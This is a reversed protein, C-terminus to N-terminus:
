PAPQPRVDPPTDVPRTERGYFLLDIVNHLVEFNSSMEAHPVCVFLLNTIPLSAQRNIQRAASVRGLLSSRTVRGDGPALMLRRYDIGGIPEAIDDPRFSVAPRGNVNDLVARKPTSECDSGIVFYGLRTDEPLPSSLAKQFRRARALSGRFRAELADTYRQIEQESDYHSTIRERVEQSFISVQLKRWTDIDYLDSSVPEGRRDILWNVDPPPLLQYSTEFSALIEPGVNFPGIRYGRMLGEVTDLSGMNPPGVLIMRRISRHASVVSDHTPRDVVDTGGFRAYYRAVMAGASHAVIDFKMDPERRLARAREIVHDLSAAAAVIGKRWDWAFLICTTDATMESPTACRYGVDRLADLLGGYYDRDRASLLLGSPIVEPEGAGNHGAIPLELSRVRWGGILMPIDPPWLLKGTAVNLLRSGL